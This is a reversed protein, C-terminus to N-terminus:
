YIEMQNKKEKNINNKISHWLKILNFTNDNYKKTDMNIINYLM